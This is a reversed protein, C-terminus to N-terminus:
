LFAMVLRMATLELHVLFIQFTISLASHSIKDGLPPVFPARGRRLIQVASSIIALTIATTVASEARLCQEFPQKLARYDFHSSTRLLGHRTQPAFPQLSIAIKLTDFLARKLNKQDHQHM